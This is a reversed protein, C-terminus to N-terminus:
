RKKVHNGANIAPHLNGDVYEGKGSVGVTSHRKEERELSANASFKFETFRELFLSGRSCVQSESGAASLNVMGVGAPRM